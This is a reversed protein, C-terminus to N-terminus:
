RLVFRSVVEVHPTQPFLDLVVSGILEYGAEVLLRADRGLSGADCSVLVVVVAKTRAITQVAQRGLGKRSPDAVVCVRRSEFLESPPRWRDVDECVVYGDPHSALNVMADNSASESSEVSVVSRFRRGVTAAFLGVGGYLDLLLDSEDAVASEVLEILCEAGDPRTQFFSDASVVFSAGGVTEEFFAQDADPESEPRVKRNLEDLGVVVVDVDPALAKLDPLIVNRRTPEVVVLVQQSTTGYRISVERANAFRGDTILREIVPHTVECSSVPVVRSSRAARFGAQGDVVAVRVGTRHGRMELPPGAIVREAADRIRGTRRLADAVMAVKLPSQAQDSVHQWGCGGCGSVVHPCTPVRRSPSPEIIEVVHGRAFDRRDEDLEVLLLEGPLGGEVFVIKGEETRGIADGGVAVAHTRLRVPSAM